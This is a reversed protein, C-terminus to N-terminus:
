NQIAASASAEPNLSSELITSYMREAIKLYGTDNMHVLTYFMTDREERFLDCLDTVPGVSEPQSGIMEWLTTYVNNARLYDGTEKGGHVPRVEDYLEVVKGESETLHTKRYLYPQTFQFHKFDYATALKHITQLHELMLKTGMAIIQDVPTVNEHGQKRNSSKFKRVIEFKDAAWVEVADKVFDWKTGVFQAPEWGELEELYFVRYQELIEPKMTYNAVLENWGTFSLVIDPKIRPAIFLLSLIDQTQYGNVQALNYCKATKKGSRLLRGDSNILKELHGAITTENSSAGSGWAASGGLVIVNLVDPDPTTFEGCRFGFSNNKVRSLIPNNLNFHRFGIPLYQFM